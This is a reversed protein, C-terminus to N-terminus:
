PCFSPKAPPTQNKCLTNYDYTKLTSVAACLQSCNYSYLDNQVCKNVPVPANKCVTSSCPVASTGNSCLLAPIGAVGPKQVGSDCGGSCEASELYSSNTGYYVGTCGSPDGYNCTRSDESVCAGQTDSSSGHTLTPCTIAVPTDCSAGTYGAYCACTPQQNQLSCTGNVCGQPCKLVTCAGTSSDKSYGLDCACTNPGVCQGNVCGGAIGDCSFQTCISNGKWGSPCSCKGPAVCTGRGCGLACFITPPENGMYVCTNGQAEYGSNCECYGYTYPPIPLVQFMGGPACTDKVCTPTGEPGMAVRQDVCQGDLCRGACNADSTCSQQQCDCHGFQFPNAGVLTSPSTVCTGNICPFDGCDGDVKCTKQCTGSTTATSGVCATRCLNSIQSASYKSLPFDSTGCGPCDSVTTCPAQKDQCVKKNETIAVCEQNADECDSNPGCPKNLCVLPNSPDRLCPYTWNGFQCVQDSKTCAYTAQGTADAVKSSPYFNPFECDCTWAQTEVDAWGQWSYFGPISDATSVGTLCASAPLTPLCFNGSLGKANQTASVAQCSFNADICASCDANTKCPTPNQSCNITAGNNLAAVSLNGLVDCYPGGWPSNCKCVNNVCLGHNNCDTDSSCSTKPAGKNKSLAWLVIPTVILTTLVFFTLLAAVLDNKKVPM